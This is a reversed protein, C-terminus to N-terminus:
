IPCRGDCVYRTDTETKQGPTAAEEPKLPVVVEPFVGGQRMLLELQKMYRIRLDILGKYFNSLKLWTSNIRQMILAILFFGVVFWISHTPNQFLQLLLYGVGTLFLANISVFETNVTQRRDSIKDTGEMLLQYERFAIELASPDNQSGSSQGQSPPQMVRVDEGVAEAGFRMACFRASPSLMCGM